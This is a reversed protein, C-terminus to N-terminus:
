SPPVHSDTYQTCLPPQMTHQNPLDPLEVRVSPTVVLMPKVSAVVGAACLGPALTPQTPVACQVLLVACMWVTSAMTAACLGRLVACELMPPPGMAAAYLELAAASSPDLRAAAYLVRRAASQAVRTQPVVACLAPWAACRSPQGAASQAQCAATQTPDTAKAASGGQRASRRAAVSPVARNTTTQIAGQSITTTMDTSAAM